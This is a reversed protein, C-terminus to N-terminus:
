FGRARVSRLFVRVPADSFCCGIDAILREKIEPPCVPLNPLQAVECWVPVYRNESSQKMRWAEECNGLRAIGSLYRCLYFKQAAGEADVCDYLLKEVEVELTTEERVERLVAQECSERAEKGGGPFVYYEQGQRRRHILLIEGRCLIIAGARIECISMHSFYQRM